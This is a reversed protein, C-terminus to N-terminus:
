ESPVMVPRFGLYNDRIVPSHKHRNAARCDSASSLWSGGRNVRYFRSAGGRPDKGGPLIDGSWDACWEWLNGQMDHLGWANPSKTGVEHTRDDSNGAHWAVRDIDGGSFPGTEGARCAYEWQAETPLAMKWGDPVVGCGNIKRIFEQADEWSVNEVPLNGGQFMSPNGGMLAQWAAQTLETKAMWFGKSLMVRAQDEDGSRGAESAPSGMIFAGPPCYSFTMVANQPLPLAISAGVKGAGIEATLKAGPDAADREARAKAAAAEREADARAEAAEREANATAEAAEREARAKTEALEREAMAIAEMAKESSKEAAQLFHRIGTALTVFGIVIATAAIIRRRRRRSRFCTLVDELGEALPRTEAHLESDPEPAESRLADLEKRVANFEGKSLREKISSSLEEFRGFFAIQNALESKAKAYDIDTFREGGIWGMVKEASRFNRKALHDEAEAVRSLHDAHLRLLKDIRKGIRTLHNWVEVHLRGTGHAFDHLAACSDVKVLGPCRLTEACIRLEIHLDPENGATDWDRPDLMGRLLEQLEAIQPEIEAMETKAQQLDALAVRPIEKLWEVKWELLRRSESLAHLLFRDLAELRLGIAALPSSPLGHEAAHGEIYDAVETRLRRLAQMDHFDSLADQEAELVKLNAQLVAVSRVFSDDM